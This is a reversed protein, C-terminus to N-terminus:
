TLDERRDSSYEAVDARDSYQKRFRVIVSGDAQEDESVIRYRTHTRDPSDKYCNVERHNMSLIQERSVGCVEKQMFVLTQM